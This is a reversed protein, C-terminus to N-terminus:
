EKADPSMGKMAAGMNKTMKEFAATMDNLNQGARQIAKMASNNQTLTPDKVMQHLTGQFIRMQDLMGQMSTMMQEHQPTSMGAHMTSLDRLMSAADRMRTDLSRMMQETADMMSSPPAPMQGGGHEHQMTARVGPTTGAAVLVLALAIRLTVSRM